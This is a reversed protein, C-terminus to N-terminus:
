GAPIAASESDWGAARRVSPDVDRSLAALLEDALSGRRRLAAVVALRVQPDPDELRTCLWDLAEASEQAALIMVGMRRLRPSRSELLDLAERDTLVSRTVNEPEDVMLVERIVSPELGGRVAVMPGRRHVASPELAKRLGALDLECVVVAPRGGECRCLQRARARAVALSRSCWLTRSFPGPCLGQQEIRRAESYTTGYYLKM